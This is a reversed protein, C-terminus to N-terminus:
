ADPILKQGNGTGLNCSARNIVWAGACGNAWQGSTTRFDYEATCNPHFDCKPLKAVKATTAM